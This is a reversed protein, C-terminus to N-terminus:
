CVAKTDFEVFRNDDISMSLLALLPNRLLSCSVSFVRVVFQMDSGLAVGFYSAIKSLNKEQPFTASIKSFNGNKAFILRTIIM